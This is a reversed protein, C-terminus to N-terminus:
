LSAYDALKANELLFEEIRDPSVSEEEDDIIPCVSTSNIIRPVTSQQVVAGHLVGLWRPNEMKFPCNSNNVVLIQYVSTDFETLKYIYPSLMELGEEYMPNHRELFEEPSIGLDFACKSYDAMSVECQVSTPEYGLILLSQDPGGDRHLKTTNKQDFRSMTFWGLKKGSKNQHIDSLSEKLEVLEKRHQLSDKIHSQRLLAFGPLSFDIRCALSYIESAVDSMSDKGISEVLYNSSKM